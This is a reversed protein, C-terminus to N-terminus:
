KVHCTIHSHESISVFAGRRLFFFFFLFPVLDVFEKRIVCHLTIWTVPM